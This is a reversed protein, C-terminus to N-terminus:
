RKLGFALAENHEWRYLTMDSIRGFRERVQKASLFVQQSTLPTTPM